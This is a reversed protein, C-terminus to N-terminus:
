GRALERAVPVRVCIHTGQPSIELSIPVHTGQLIKRRLEGQTGTVGPRGQTYVNVCPAGAAREVTVVLAIHGREIEGGLVEGLVTEVAFLDADDTTMSRLAEIAARAAAEFDGQELAVRAQWSTM